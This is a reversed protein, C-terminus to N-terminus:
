APQPAAAHLAHTLVGRAAQRLADLEDEVFNQADDIRFDSDAVYGLTTEAGHLAGRHATQSRRPYAARALAAADAEPMVTALAARFLATAGQQAKCQPCWQLAVLGAGIGEVVTVLLLAALSPNQAEAELAQYYADLADALSTDRQLTDWAAEAWGPLDRDRRQAIEQEPTAACGNAWRSDARDHGDDLHPVTIHEGPAACVPETRVIWHEGWALSLLAAARRVTRLVTLDDIPEGPQQGHSAATGHVVLPWSSYAFARDGLLYSPPRAMEHMLEGGPLLRLPGLGSECSLASLRQETGTEFRWSPQPCPGVLANWTVEGLTGVRAAAGLVAERWPGIQDALRAEDEAPPDDDVLITCVIRGDDGRQAVLVSRLAPDSAEYEIHDCASSGSGGFFSAGGVRILAHLHQQWEDGHEVWDLELRLEIESVPVVGSRKRLRLGPRATASPM